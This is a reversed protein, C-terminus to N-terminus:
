GTENQMWLTLHQASCDRATWAPVLPVSFSQLLPLWLPFGFKTSQGTSSHATQAHSLKSWWMHRFNFMHAQLVQVMNRMMSRCSKRLCARWAVRVAATGGVQVELRATKKPNEAITEAVATTTMKLSKEIKEMEVTLADKAHKINDASSFYRFFCYNFVIFLHLLYVVEELTAKPTTVSKICWYNNFLHLVNKFISNICYWTFYM